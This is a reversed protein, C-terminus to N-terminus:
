VRRAQNWLINFMLKLSHAFVKNTIRVGSLSQGYDMLVVKDGYIVLHSEFQDLLSLLKVERYKKSDTIIEKQFQTVINARLIKIAIKNEARKTLFNRVFYEKLVAEPIQPQITYITEKSLLFDDYLSKLGKMGKLQEAFVSPSNQNLGNLFPIIKSISMKKEELIELLIQPKQAVFLTTGNESVSTVIGKLILKNLIDYTSQRLISTSKSISQSSSAGNTLLCVYVETEKQDLGYELLIQKPDISEQSM